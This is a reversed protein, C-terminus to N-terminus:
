GLIGQRGSDSPTWVPELSGEADYFVYPRLDASGELMRHLAHPRGGEVALIPQAALLDREGAAIDAIEARHAASM